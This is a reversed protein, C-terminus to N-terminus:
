LVHRSQSIERLPACTCQRREPAIPGGFLRTVAAPISRVPPVGNSKFRPLEDRGNHRSPHAEPGHSPMTM